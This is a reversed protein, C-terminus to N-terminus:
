SGCRSRTSNATARSRSTCPAGWARDFAGSSLHTSPPTSTTTSPGLAIEVEQVTLGTAQSLLRITEAPQMVLHAEGAAAIGAFCSLSIAILIAHFKMVTAESVRLLDEKVPTSPHSDAPMRQAALTRGEVMM